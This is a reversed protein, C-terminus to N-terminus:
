CSEKWGKLHQLLLNNSEHDKVALRIYKGDLGRFNYTHRPVIGKLLLYQILLDIKEPNTPDCLLYFNVSSNSVYFGLSRLEQSIRDREQQINKMISAPYQPISLVDIALEQAFRNVSWPPSFRSIEKIILPSAVVYGLRIGALKYMKTLSRLVILHQNTQALHAVSCPVSSFDYFAEDVILYTDAEKAWQIIEKMTDLNLVIGTPNNPNCIFVVDVEELFARIQETRVIWDDDRTLVLEKITCGFLISAEKYEVFTPQIIGVTKGRFYQALLFICQSAGNGIFLHDRTIANTSCIVKNLQTINPDPYHSIWEEFQDSYSSITYPAEFPNVNVSFDNISGPMQVKFKEFTYLPNAGHSPYFM